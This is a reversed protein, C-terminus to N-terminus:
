GSGEVSSPLDPAAPARRQGDSRILCIRAPPAQATTNQIYEELTYPVFGKPFAYSTLHRLIYKNETFFKGSLIM